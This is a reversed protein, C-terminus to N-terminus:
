PYRRPRYWHPAATWVVPATGVQAAVCIPLGTMGHNGGGNASVLDLRGDGNFDAITQPQYSVAYAVATAFSLLRPEELTEICARDIAQRRASVIWAHLNAHAAFAGMASAIHWDGKAYSKERIALCERLVPEAESRRGQLQLVTGLNILLEAVTEHQM